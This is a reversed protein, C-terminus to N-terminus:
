GRHKALERVSLAIARRLFAAAAANQERLRAALNKIQEVIQSCLMQAVRNGVFARKRMRRLARSVLQPPSLPPRTRPRAM